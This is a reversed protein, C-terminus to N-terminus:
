PKTASLLLLECPGAFRDDEEFDALAVEIEQWVESRRSPSLTDALERLAGFAEQEFRICQAADALRLPAQVATTTVDQFGADAAAVEFRGAALAFPGPSEAPAAQRGAAASLKGIPVAVFANREVSTFALAGLRGGPRLVRFAERLGQAADSFYQFGLRCIVADVAGTAVDLQEGDCVRTELPVHADDAVRAAFEVLASSFDVAIVHAGRRAAAVSQGGAGAAVDLVIAGDVVGAADLMLETADGLWGDITERWTYWAPAVADWQRHSAKRYEDGAAM